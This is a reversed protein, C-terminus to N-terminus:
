VEKKNKGFLFVTWREKINKSSMEISAINDFIMVKDVPIDNATVWGKIIDKIEQPKDVVSLIEAFALAMVTKTQKSMRYDRLRM